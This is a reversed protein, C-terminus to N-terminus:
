PTTLVVKCICMYIHIIYEGILNSSSFYKPIARRSCKDCSHRWTSTSPGFEFLTSSKVMSGETVLRSMWLYEVQSTLFKSDPKNRMYKYDPGERHGGWTMDRSLHEWAKGGEETHVCSFFLFPPLGPFSVQNFQWVESRWAFAYVGTYEAMFLLGYYRM